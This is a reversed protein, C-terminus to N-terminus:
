KKVPAEVTEVTATQAREVALNLEATQRNAFQMGCVFAIISSVLVAIVVDKFHEGRTKAYKKKSTAQEPTNTTKAMKNVKGVVKPTQNIPTVEYEMDFANLGRAPVIM